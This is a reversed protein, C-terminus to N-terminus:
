EVIRDSKKQVQKKGSHYLYGAVRWLMRLFSVNVTGTPPPKRRVYLSLFLAAVFNKNQLLM